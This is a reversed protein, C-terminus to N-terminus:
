HRKAQVNLGIAAYLSLLTQRGGGWHMLPNILSPFWSLTVQVMHRLLKQAWHLFATLTILAQAEVTHLLQEAEGATSWWWTSPRPARAARRGENVTQTETPAEAGPRTRHVTGATSSPSRGPIGSALGPQNDSLCRCWYSVSLVVLWVEQEQSRWRDAECVEIQKQTQVGWRAPQPELEDLLWLSCRQLKISKNILNLILWKRQLFDVSVFVTVREMFHVRLVARVDTKNIEANETWLSKRSETKKEMQVILIFLTILGCDM